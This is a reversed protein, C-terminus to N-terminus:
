KVLLGDRYARVLVCGKSDERIVGDEEVFYEAAKLPIDIRYVKYTTGPNNMSAMNARNAALNPSNTFM